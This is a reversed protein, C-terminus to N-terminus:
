AKNIYSALLASMELQERDDEIKKRLGPCKKVSEADTFGLMDTLVPQHHLVAADVINLTVDGSVVEKCEGDEYFVRYRIGKSSLCVLSAPCRRCNEDM